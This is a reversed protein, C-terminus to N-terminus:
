PNYLDRSYIKIYAKRKIQDIYKQAQTSSKKSQLVSSAFGQYQEILDNINSKVLFIVKLKDNHQIINSVSGVKLDKLITKLVIEFDNLNKEVKVWTINKILQDKTYDYNPNKNLKNRLLELEAFNDKTGSSVSFIITQLRVDKLNSDRMKVNKAASSSTLDKIFNELEMFNETNPKKPNHLKRSIISGLLHETTLMSKIFDKFFDYKINTQMLIFFFAGKDLNSNTEFLRIRDNVEKDGISIKNKKAEQNCIANIILDDLAKKRIDAVNELSKRNLAMMLKQHMKVQSLTIAEKNVIAVIKDAKAQFSFLTALIILTLTITRSIKM